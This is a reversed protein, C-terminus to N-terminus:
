ADAAMEARVNIADCLAVLAATVAEAVVGASTRGLLDVPGIRSASGDDCVRYRSVRGGRVPAGSERLHSTALWLLCRVAMVDAGTRAMLDAILEREDVHNELTSDGLPHDAKITFAGREDVGKGRCQALAPEVLEDISM